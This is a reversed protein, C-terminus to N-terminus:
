ILDQYWEDRLAITGLAKATRFALIHWCQLGRYTFDGCTCFDEDVVYTDTTGIVVCFDRYQIVRGNKAALVAKEGKAGYLRCVEATVEEADSGGM